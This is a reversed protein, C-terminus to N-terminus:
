QNKLQVVPEIINFVTEINEYTALTEITGKKVTKTVTAEILAAKDEDPISKIKSIADSIQKEYKQLLDPNFSFVTKEEILDGLGNEQLMQEKTETVKLYKDQVIVLVNAGASQLVFSDPKHNYKKYLSVFSDRAAPKIDGELMEVQAELIKIENRKELLDKIKDGLAVPVILKSKVKSEVKPAATKASAFISTAM